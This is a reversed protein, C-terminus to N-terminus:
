CGQSPWTMYIASRKSSGCGFEGAARIDGAKMSEAFAADAGHKGILVNASRYIALDSTM